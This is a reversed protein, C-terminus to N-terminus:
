PSVGLHRSRVTLDAAVHLLEGEDIERWGPEDDLRESAVVVAATDALGESHAALHTGRGAFRVDAGSGGAERELVFLTDTRPFRYAWLDTATTLLFNVSVIPLSKRIWATAAEIGALVDGDHRTIEATVLAFVRESDTDGEVLGLADFERLRRELAPLDGVTGNHAFIRGEKLFPHTNRLSVEGTSAHRVHAVFTTGHLRHADTAFEADSWAALPAKDVVPVGDAGFAGIGFGDANRRSQLALSDPAELLWFSADVVSEGAHMGFLRCM